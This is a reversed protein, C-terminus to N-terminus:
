RKRLEHNSISTYTCFSIGLQSYSEFLGMCPSNGKATLRTLDKNSYAVAVTKFRGNKKFIENRRGLAHVFKADICKIKKKQM